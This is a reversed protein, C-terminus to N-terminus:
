FLKQTEFLKRQEEDKSSREKVYINYWLIKHNKLDERSKM